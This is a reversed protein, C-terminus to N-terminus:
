IEKPAKQIYRSLSRNNIFENFSIPPYFIVNDAFYSHLSYLACDCNDCDNLLLKNYKLALQIDDLNICGQLLRQKHYYYVWILHSYFNRFRLQPPKYHYSWKEMNELLKYIIRYQEVSSKNNWDKTTYYKNADFKLWYENM